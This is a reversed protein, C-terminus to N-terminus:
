ALKINMVQPDGIFKGLVQRLSARLYSLGVTSRDSSIKICREEMLILDCPFIVANSFFRLLASGVVSTVQM